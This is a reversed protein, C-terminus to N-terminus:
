YYLNLTCDIILNQKDITENWNIKKHNPTLLQFTISDIRDLDYCRTEIPYCSYFHQWGFPDGRMEIIKLQDRTQIKPNLNQNIIDCTLLVTNMRNMKGEMTSYVNENSEKIVIGTAYGLLEAVPYSDEYTTYVAGYDSNNFTFFYSGLASDVNLEVDYLYTEIIATSIITYSGNAIMGEKLRRIFSTTDYIGEYFKIEQLVNDHDRYVFIANENLVPYLNKLHYENLTLTLKKVNNLYIPKDSFDMFVTGNNPEYDPDDYDLIHNSISLQYNKTYKNPDLKDM